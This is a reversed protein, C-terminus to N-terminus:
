TRPQLPSLIAVGKMDRDQTIYISTSPRAPHFTLNALGRVRSKHTRTLNKKERLVQKEEGDRVVTNTFTSVRLKM